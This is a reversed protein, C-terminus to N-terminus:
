KISWAKGEKKKKEKTNKFNAFLFFFMNLSDRFKTQSCDKSKVLFM